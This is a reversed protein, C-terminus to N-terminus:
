MLSLKSVRNESLAIRKLFEPQSPNHLSSAPAYKDITIAPVHRHISRLMLAMRRGARAKLMFNQMM